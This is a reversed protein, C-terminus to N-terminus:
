TNVLPTKKKIFEEAREQSAHIIAECTSQNDTLVEFCDEDIPWVKVLSCALQARLKKHVETTRKMPIGHNEYEESLEINAEKANQLSQDYLCAARIAEECFYSHIVIQAPTKEGAENTSTIDITATDYDFQSLQIM